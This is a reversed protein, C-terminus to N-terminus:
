KTYKANDIAQRFTEATWNGDCPEDFWHDATALWDLRESDKGAKELALERAALLTGQAAVQSQLQALAQGLLSIAADEEAMHRLPSHAILERVRYVAEDQADTLVTLEEAAAYVILDAIQQPTFIM